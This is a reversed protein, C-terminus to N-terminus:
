SKRRFTWVPGFPKAVVPQTIVVESTRHRLTVSAFLLSLVMERFENMPTDNTVDRVQSLTFSLIEVGAGAGVGIAYQMKTITGVLLLGSETFTCTGGVFDPANQSNIGEMHLKPKSTQNRYTLQIPRM